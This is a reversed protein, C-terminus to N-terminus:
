NVWNLIKIEGLFQQYYDRQEKDSRNNLWVRDYFYVGVCKNPKCNRVIDSITDGTSVFDDIIIYDGDLAGEITKVSHSSDNPKRVLAWSKGLQLAVTPGIISGSFGRFVVTHFKVTKLKNVAKTVANFFENHDGLNVNYM